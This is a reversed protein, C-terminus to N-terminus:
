LSLLLMVHVEQKTQHDPIHYRHPPRHCSYSPAPIQIYSDDWLHVGCEFATSLSEYAVSPCSLYNQKIQLLYEFPIDMKQFHFIPLEFTYNLMSTNSCLHMCGCMHTNTIVHMWYINMGCQQM